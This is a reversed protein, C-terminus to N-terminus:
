IARPARQSQLTRSLQDLDCPRTGIAGLSIGEAGHDPAVDAVALSAQHVDWGVSRTRSPPM